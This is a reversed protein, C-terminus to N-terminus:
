RQPSLSRRSWARYALYAAEAIHPAPDSWLLDSQVRGPALFRRWRGRRDDALTALLALPFPWRFSIGKEYDPVPDVDGRLALEATLTPFDVGAARGLDLTGWFRGNIEILHADGAHDVLFEVQAPGHWQLERLLAFAPEFLDSRDVSESWVGFGGSPPYMLRRHQVMAARPQGRCFLVNVDYIDGTLKEQVIRASGDYIPGGCAPSVDVELLHSRNHALRMGVAGSGRVLKVLCPFSVEDAIRELDARSRVLWTPPTPVGLRRALRVTAFKDRATELADETPLALALRRRLRERKRGAAYTTWDNLPLLVDAGFEAAAALLCDAYEDLGKQPHVCRFRRRVFRSWGAQGLFRDAVIAADVGAAALARVAAVPKRDDPTCTTALLVRM